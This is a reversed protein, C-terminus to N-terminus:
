WNEHLFEVYFYLNCFLIYTIAFIVSIEKSLEISLLQTFNWLMQILNQYNQHGGNKFVGNQSFRSLKL